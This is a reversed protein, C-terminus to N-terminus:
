SQEIIKRAEAIGKEFGSDLGRVYEETGNFEKPYKFEKPLKELVSEKQQALLSRIFSKIRSIREMGIFDRGDPSSFEDDFEKEWDKNSM